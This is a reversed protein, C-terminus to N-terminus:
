SGKRQNRWVPYPVLQQADHPCFKAGSDYGRHCKPCIMGHSKEDEGGGKSAPILASADAPCFRSGPPFTENCTPCVM